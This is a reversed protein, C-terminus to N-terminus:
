GGFRFEAVADLQSLGSLDDAGIRERVAPDAMMLLWPEDLQV